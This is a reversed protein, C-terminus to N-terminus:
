ASKQASNNENEKQKQKQEWLFKKEAIRFEQQLQKFRPEILAKLYLVKGEGLLYHPTKCLYEDLGGKKDISRLAYPTVRLKIRKNLIASYLTTVRVNPSWSRRTKAESHSVTNGFMIHKRGFIGRRTKGQVIRGNSTRPRIPVSLLPFQPSSFNIRVPSFSSVFPSLPRSLSSFRLFSFVRPCLSTM